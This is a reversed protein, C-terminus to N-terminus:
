REVIQRHRDGPQRRMRRQDAANGHQPSIEAAPQEAQRAVVIRFEPAEQTGVLAGAQPRSLAGGGNAEFIFPCVEPM